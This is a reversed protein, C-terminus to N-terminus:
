VDLCRFQSPMQVGFCGPPRHKGFDHIWLLPFYQKQKYTKVEVICVPQHLIFFLRFFLSVGFVCSWIMIKKRSSKPKKVDSGGPIVVMVRGVLDNTECPTTLWITTEWMCNMPHDDGQHNWGLQFIACLWTPGFKWPYFGFFDHLGSLFDLVYNFEFKGNISVLIRVM